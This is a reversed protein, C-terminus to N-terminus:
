SGSFSVGEFVVAPSRFTSWPLPDNGVAALQKLLDRYNGTINMESIPEALEGGRVVRGRIGFSFDGSTMNANGGLWSDVLIADGADAILGATDLPGHEFVINTAGGGNPELGLKKGYYQDIYFRRLVGAEIVPRRHLAIGDGDFLKSASSRPLFPDDTLTLRPSAIPQDLAEALFSQGQQISGASLAGLIRGLFSPAAERDLILLGQRSPAKTAGRRGLARALAESGVEHPAPLDEAHPAGVYRAAEPRKDGDRVTTEAGYWLSTAQKTGRFGNSGALASAGSSDFVVSTASLVADDAEAAEAVERALALRRDPTLESLSRDVQDLPHQELDAFLRPDTIARYPDPELARTLAVADDIFRRLRGDDELDNTSHASYRGDVYLRLGLELSESEQLKEPAGARWQLEASRGWAAKAYVDDAGASRALEVAREARRLLEAARADLGDIAVTESM